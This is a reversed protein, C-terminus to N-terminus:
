EGDESEPFERVPQIVMEHVKWDLEQIDKYAQEIKAILEETNHLEAVPIIFAEGFLVQGNERARIRVEKVWDLERFFRHIDYVLPMKEESDIETPLQEIIDTVAAKTRMAGEKIINASIFIAAAADAWWLGFGIGIIGIITAGATQWDAKQTAADTYLIKNHLKRALPLKARGLFLAPIFSYLLALIMLWGFWLTQGFVTVHGITPHEGKLLATVAEYFTFLGIGLLAFSGLLFAVTFIKHFGYPYDHNPPKRDFLAYALLFLISPIMSLMDEYWATKMAQSSSLTIYMVVVVTVLYIITLWELRKAKHLDKKLYEPVEHARTTIFYRADKQKSNGTM